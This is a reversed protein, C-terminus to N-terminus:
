WNPNQTLKGGYLTIQDQPIPYLYDRNETWTRSKQTIDHVIVNGGSTGNELQIHEGLKLFVTVGTLEPYAAVTPQDGDYICIDLADNTGNGNMDYVRFKKTADLASFYMGKFQKEFTKGEKWRVIDYYRFGEDFLEITRERRIELIVGQNTGSVNPYGTEASLLYPDPNANATSMNLHPMGVRDRLKNVSKDLDNQTLTGLEAKAEAFNLYVEATRFISLDNNSKHWGDAEASTVGKIIQYGTSASSFGPSIETTGKIRKYGPTIITQALRPDRNQMEQYFEMTEYNPVDTFRTGDKMLYSNVIKKNMGPKMGASIFYQNINHIINLSINYNRALIIEQAVASNATFLSQYPTTGNTYIEYPASDMFTQAADVVYQLYTEYGSIGHYKRFTGEFLCIRTKLALATWKTVKYTSKLTPLDQIAQDIDAIVNNMLTNRDTRGNYLRDDTSGLPTDFWPVEGFRKIKEFYFYARFFRALADYEKRAQVDPCQESYMLYTNIDSLITWTWGSGSAPVTRIGLVENSLTTPIIIDATEEYLDSETPMLAYFSNTAVELEERSSYFNEPAIADLPFRDLNCSTLLAFISFIYIIRKM